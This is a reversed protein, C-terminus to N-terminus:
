ADVLSPAFVQEGSLCFPIAGTINVDVLKGIQSLDTGPVRVNIRGETLGALNQQKRDLGTILVPITKGVVTQNWALSHEIACENVRQLREGKVDYPIDDSWRSSAAGPRPSYKAFYIMNFRFEHLAKITNEFQADTEGTFGVIIDTFLTAEPLLDRITHVIERYAKLSHQRNMRLLVRDDGSQLPMHVQNGLCTYEAMVELVERTMDRPHPSTYYVWFPDDAVRGMQGIAALLQAFRMEAGKRDLGYSNVNQGLLTISKFGRKILSEVEALIEDSRRSVERGRTYPVACFTCFKDCGNQIPVFASVNSVPTAKITWLDAMVEREPRAKRTLADLSILTAGQPPASM